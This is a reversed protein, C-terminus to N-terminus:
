CNTVAERSLIIVFLLLIPSRFAVCSTYYFHFSIFPFHSRSVASGRRRLLNTIVWFIVFFISQIYIHYPEHYLLIHHPQLTNSDSQTYPTRLYCNFFFQCMNSKFKVFVNKKLIDKWCYDFICFEISVAIQARNAQDRSKECNYTHLKDHMHLLSLYFM